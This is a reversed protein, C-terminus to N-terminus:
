KGLAKKFSLIATELEKQHSEMESAFENVDKNDTLEYALDSIKESIRNFPKSWEARNEADM